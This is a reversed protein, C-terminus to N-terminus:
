QGIVLSEALTLMRRIWGSKARHRVSSTQLGGKGGFATVEVEVLQLGYQAHRRGGKDANSEYGPNNSASQNKKERPRQEVARQGWGGRWGWV